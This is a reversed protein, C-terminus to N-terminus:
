KTKRSASADTYGAHKKRAGGTDSFPANEQRSERPRHKLKLLSRVTFPALICTVACVLIMANYVRSSVAWGGEARGQEMVVMAIEARPVMSAGILLASPL